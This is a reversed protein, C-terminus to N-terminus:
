AFVFLLDELLQPLRVVFTFPQNASVTWNVGLFGLVLLARIVASARRLILSAVLFRGLDSVVLIRIDFPRRRSNTFLCQGRSGPSIIMLQITRPPPRRWAIAMSSPVMSSLLSPSRHNSTVFRDSEISLASAYSLDTMSSYSLPHLDAIEQGDLCDSTM